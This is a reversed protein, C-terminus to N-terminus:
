CTPWPVWFLVWARSKTLQVAAERCSSSCTPSRGLEKGHLTPYPPCHGSVTSIRRRQQFGKWQESRWAWLIVHEKPYCGPRQTQVIWHKAGTQAHHCPNPNLKWIGGYEILTPCFGSFHLTREHAARQEVMSFFVHCWKVTSSATCNLLLFWLQM